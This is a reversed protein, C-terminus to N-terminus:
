KFVCVSQTRQKKASSASADDSDSDRQRKRTASNSEEKVEGEELENDDDDGEQDEKKVDGNGNSEKTEVDEEQEGEDEDEEENRDDPNPPPETIIDADSFINWDTHKSSDYDCCSYSMATLMRQAEKGAAVSPFTFDTVFINFSNGDRQFVKTGHHIYQNFALKVGYNDANLAGYDGRGSTIVLYLRHQDDSLPKPCGSSM